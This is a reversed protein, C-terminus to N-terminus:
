EARSPGVRGLSVAPREAETKRETKPDAANAAAMLYLKACDQINSHLQSFLTDAM